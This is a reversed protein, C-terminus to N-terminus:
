NLNWDIGNDHNTRARSPSYVGVSHLHLVVRFAVDLAKTIRLIFTRGEASRTNRGDTLLAEM